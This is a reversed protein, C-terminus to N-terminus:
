LVGTAPVLLECLAEFLAKIPVKGAATDFEACSKGGLRRMKGQLDCLQQALPLKCCVRLGAAVLERM